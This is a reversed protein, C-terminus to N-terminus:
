EDWYMCDSFESQIFLILNNARKVRNENNLIKSEQEKIKKELRVIKSKLSIIELKTAQEIDKDPIFVKIEAM